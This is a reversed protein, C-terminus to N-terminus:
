KDLEERRRDDVWPLAILSSLVNELDNPEALFIDSREM